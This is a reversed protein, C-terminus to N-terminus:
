HDAPLDLRMVRVPDGAAVGNGDPLLALGNALATASLVNSAQAGTRSATWREGDARVLVRDLHLKGDPRRSLDTEAVATVEPRHRRAHGMRRLITPRAFLEFSVLSSVPNGPLGFVPTAGVMAFALPKAPKIAVQWWHAPGSAISALVAKVHDYDGVSVGGSAVVVDCHACAETLARRITAEDDPLVGLDVATAGAQEVLALLMPRNADRIQGRRLAGREVLEDGTSCVGVRARRVVRVRTVGLSALVGVHAPGLATGRGVAHDGVELDSGAARVHTGPVVPELVRVHGGVQETSEVMVVADAGEPLAAGTMIRVAEGEGVAVDPASGAALEGVVDLVAPAAATDPARVAFGDMASNAFPPIPETAVVDDALVQGLAHECDLEIADLSSVADAIVAQAAALDIM